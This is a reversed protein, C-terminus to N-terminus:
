NFIFLHECILNFVNIQGHSLTEHTGERRSKYRIPTCKETYKCSVSCSCRFSNIYLNFVASRCCIFYVNWTFLVLYIWQINSNRSLSLALASLSPFSPSSNTECFLKVITRWISFNSKRENLEIILKATLWYLSLCFWTTAAVIM